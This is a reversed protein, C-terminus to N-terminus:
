IICLHKKRHACTAPYGSVLVNSLPQLKNKNILKSPTAKIFFEISIPLVQIIKDEHKGCAVAHKDNTFNFIPLQSNHSGNVSPRL